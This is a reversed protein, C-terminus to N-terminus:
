SCGRRDTVMSGVEGVGAKLEVTFDSTAVFSYSVSVVTGDNLGKYSSRSAVLKGNIYIGVWIVGPSFKYDQNYASVYIDVRSDADITYTGESYETGNVKVYYRSIRARAM